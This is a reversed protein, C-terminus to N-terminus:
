LWGCGPRTASRWLPLSAPRVPDALGVLGLFQFPFDHQEAPLRHDAPLRAIGLVRLGGKAMCGGAPCGSAHKEISPLPRRHSGPRGQRRDRLYPGPAGALCLGPWYLQLYRINRSQVWGQQLLGPEHQHSGALSCIAKDMPDLPNQQCALSSFKILERSAKRCHARGRTRSTYSKGQAFLQRVSMRNITLTGTKDVCLVTAAGLTEVAPVRRTLVQKQSIRWAGMALFITLVVPFEEPLVAMALTIGALIGALWNGRTLGYVVVALTCLM